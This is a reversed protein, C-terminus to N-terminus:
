VHAQLAHCVAQGQGETCEPIAHLVCPLASGLLSEAQQPTQIPMSQQRSHLPRTSTPRRPMDITSGGSFTVSLMFYALPSCTTPRLTYTEEKVNVLMSSAGFLYREGWDFSVVRVFDKNALLKNADAVDPLRQSAYFNRKVPNPTYPKAASPNAPNAATFPMDTPTTLLHADPNACCSVNAMLSMMWTMMWTMTMWTMTLILTMLMRLTVPSSTQLRRTPIQLALCHDSDIRAGFCGLVGCVALHSQVTQAFSWFLKFSVRGTPRSAALDSRSPQYCKLFLM